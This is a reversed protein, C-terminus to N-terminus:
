SFFPEDAVVQTGKDDAGIAHMVQSVHVDYEDRSYTLYM